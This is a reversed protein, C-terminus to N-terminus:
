KRVIIKVVQGKTLQKTFLIRNNAVEIYDEGSWQVVKNVYVDLAGANVTYTENSPLFIDFTGDAVVTVSLTVTSINKDSATFQQVRLKGGVKWDNIIVSASNNDVAYQDLLRLTGTSTRYTDNGTSDLKRDIILGDQFIMTLNSLQKFKTTYIRQINNIPLIENHTSSTLSNINAVKKNFEYISIQEGAVVNDLSFALIDTYNDPDVNIVPQGRNDIIPRGTPDLAPKTNNYVREAYVQFTNIQSQVVSTDEPQRRTVLQGNKFVLMFEDKIFQTNQLQYFEAGTKTATIVERTATLDDLAAADKTFFQYVIIADGKANPNKALEAITPGNCGAVILKGADNVYYDNQDAELKMGNRFVLFTKNKTINKFTFTNFGNAVANFEELYINYISSQAVQMITVIDGIRIGSVSEGNTEADGFVQVKRVGDVTYTIGNADVLKESTIVNVNSKQQLMGNRFVLLPATLDFDMNLDLTLWGNAKALGEKYNFEVPVYNHPLYFQFFRIDDQDNAFMSLTKNHSDVVYNTPSIFVNNRTVFFHYNTDIDILDFSVRKTAASYTYHVSVKGYSKTDQSAAQLLDNMMKGKVANKSAVNDVVEGIKFAYEKSFFSSKYDTGAILQVITFTEGVNTNPIVITNENSENLTLSSTPIFVGEKFVMVGGLSLDAINNSLKVPFNAEIAKLRTWDDALLDSQSATSGGRLALLEKMLADYQVKVVNYAEQEDTTRTYNTITFNGSVNSTFNKVLYNISVDGNFQMIDIADDGQSQYLVLDKNDVKWDDTFLGNKFVFFKRDLNIKQINLIRREGEAITPHIVEVLDSTIGVNEVIVDRKVALPVRQVVGNSTIAIEHSLEDYTVSVNSGSTSNDISINIDKWATGNWIKLSNNVYAMDGNKPNTPLALYARANEPLSAWRGNMKVKLESDITDIWFQGDKAAIPTTYSIITALSNVKTWLTSTWIKLEGNLNDYWLQGTAPSLPAIGYEVLGVNQVNKWTTGVKVKMAGSVTDFWVMGEKANAPMTNSIFSIATEDIDVWKGNKRIKLVNSGNLWFMGDLARVPENVSSVAGGFEPIEVWVPSAKSGKNVYLITSTGSRTIHLAGTSAVKPLANGESVTDAGVEKWYNVGTSPEQTYIFMQNTSTNTWWQGIHADIPQSVSEIVSILRQYTDGDFVKMGDINRDYWLDSAKPEPPQIYSAASNFGFSVWETGNFVKFVNINTDFWTKGPEPNEPPAHGASSRSIQNVINDFKAEIDTDKNIIEWTKKTTYVLLSGNSTNYWIQGVQPAQPEHSSAFNELLHVFNNIYAEGWNLVGKGPLRLSTSVDDYTKNEINLFESGDAHKVILGM